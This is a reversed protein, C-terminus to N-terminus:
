GHAIETLTKPTANLLHGRAPTAPVFISYRLRKQDIVVRPTAETFPALGDKWLSIEIGKIHYNFLEQRSPQKQAWAQPNIGFEFQRIVVPVGYGQDDELKTDSQVEITKLDHSGEPAVKVEGLDEVGGFKAVQKAKPTKKM